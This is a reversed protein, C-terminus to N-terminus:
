LNDMFKRVAAYASGDTIDTVEDALNHTTVMRNDENRIRNRTRRPVKGLFKVTGSEDFRYTRSM